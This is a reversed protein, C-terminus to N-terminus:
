KLPPLWRPLGFGEKKRAEEFRPSSIEKLPPLRYCGLIKDFKPTFKKRKNQKHQNFIRLSKFSKLKNLLMIIFVKQFERTNRSYSRQSFGLIL